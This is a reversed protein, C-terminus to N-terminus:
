DNLLFLMISSLKHSDEFRYMNYDFDSEAITVSDETIMRVHYQVNISDVDPLVHLRDFRLDRGFTLGYSRNKATLEGNFSAVITDNEPLFCFLISDVVFHVTSTSDLARDHLHRPAIRPGFMNSNILKKNRSNIVSIMGLHVKWGNLVLSDNEPCYAGYDVVSYDQCPVFEKTVFTTCGVVSLIVWMSMGTITKNM